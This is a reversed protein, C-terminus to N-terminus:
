SGMPGQRQWNNIAVLQLPVFPTQVHKSAHVLGLVVGSLGHELHQPSVTIVPQLTLPAAVIERVSESNFFPQSKTITKLHGNSLSAIM